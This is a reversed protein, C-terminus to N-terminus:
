TKDLYKAIENLRSHINELYHLESNAEEMLTRINGSGPDMREKLSRIVDDIMSIICDEAIRLSAHIRETLIWRMNEVNRNVIGHAKMQIRERILSEKKKRGHLPNNPLPDIAVHWDTIDIKAAKSRRIKKRITAFVENDFKVSTKDGPHALVENIDKVRNNVIDTIIGDTVDSIEVWEVSLVTIIDKKIDDFKREEHNNLYKIQGDILISEIRSSLASRLSEVKIQIDYVARNAEGNLIDPMTNKKKELEAALREGNEVIHNIGKIKKYATSMKSITISQIETIIQILRGNGSDSQIFAKNPLIQDTIFQTISNIEFGNTLVPINTGQTDPHIASVAFIVSKHGTKITKTLIDTTYELASHLSDRDLHDIKNIVFYIHRTYRAANKIFAIEDETILNDASLVFFVADFQFLNKFVGDSVAITPSSIGPTDIFVIGGKLVSSPHYITLCRVSRANGPNREETAYESIIDKIIDPNESEFHLPSENIFDIQVKRFEGAKVYIFVNTLPLISIPLLQESLLANIFSSKGSNFQGLIAINLENGALHEITWELKEVHERVKDSITEITSLIQGAASSLQLLKNPKFSASDTSRCQGSSNNHNYGM